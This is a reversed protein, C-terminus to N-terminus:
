SRQKYYNSVDKRIESSDDYLWVKREPNYIDTSVRYPKYGKGSLYDYLRIKTCVYTSM